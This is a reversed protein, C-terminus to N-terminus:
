CRRSDARLSASRRNRSYWSSSRRNISSWISRNCRDCRVAAHHETATATTTSAAVTILMTTASNVQAPLEECRRNLVRHRREFCRPRGLCGESRLPLQARGGSSPCWSLDVPPDVDVDVSSLARRPPRALVSCCVVADARRLSRAATPRAAHGFDVPRWRVLLLCRFAVLHLHTWRRDRRARASSNSCRARWRTLTSSARSTWSGSPAHTHTIQSGPYSM